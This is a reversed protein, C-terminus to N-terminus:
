AIDLLNAQQKTPLEGRLMLWIMQSFSIQGILDQVEYGRYRIEGPKMEIIDTRWWNAVNQDQTM